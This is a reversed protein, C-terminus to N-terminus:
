FEAEALVEDVVSGYTARMSQIFAAFKPDDVSMDLALTFDEWLDNDQIATRVQEWMGRKELAKKLGYRSYKKLPEPEPEVETERKWWGHALACAETFPTFNRWKSPLSAYENGDPSVYKTIKM